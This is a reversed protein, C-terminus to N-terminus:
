LKKQTQELCESLVRKTLVEVLNRRLYITGRVDDIPKAEESAMRAMVSVSEEDWRKGL